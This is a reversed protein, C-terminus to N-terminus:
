IFQVLGPLLFQLVFLALETPLISKKYFSHALLIFYFPIEFLYFYVTYLVALNQV